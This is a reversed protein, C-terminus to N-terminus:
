GCATMTVLDGTRGVTADPHGSAWRDWARLMADGGDDSAFAARLCTRGRDEWAVFSDGTWTEVVDRVAAAPVASELTLMASWLGFAGEDVVPGEPPPVPVPVAGVGALYLEPRLIQASTTPPDEFAADLRDNGGEDLLVDVFRPGVVYPFAILQPVVPPVSELDIGAGLALEEVQLRRREDSSLTAVWAQEVRVASGEVLSLFAFASEDDADDLEPRDLGFHQDDLAHTLEHVLTSRVYPSVEAGRLVLESTDSDYFGVVADGLFSLLVAELDVGDDLLRLARLLAATTQLEERDAVVDDLLRRRFAEDDLLEVDVEDLFPLGREEEVFASLEEVAELLEDRAPPADDLTTTTTPSAQQSTTTPAEPSAGGGGVLLAAMAGGAALVVGLVILLVASPGSGEDAAPRTRM